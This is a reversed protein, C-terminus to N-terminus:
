TVWKKYFNEFQKNMQSELMAYQDPKGHQTKRETRLRDYDQKMLLYFEDGLFERKTM